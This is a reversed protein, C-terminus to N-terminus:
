AKQPLESILKAITQFVMTLVIKSSLTIVLDITLFFHTFLVKM